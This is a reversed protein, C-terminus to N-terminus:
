WEDSSFRPPAEETLTAGTIVLCCCGNTAELFGSSVSITSSSHFTLRM